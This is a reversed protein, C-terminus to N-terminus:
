LRLRINMRSLLVTFGIMSLAWLLSGGVALVPSADQKYILVPVGIGWILYYILDPALYTTLSNRGAPLFVRTWREKKLVDVVYFLLAFVLMSIGNCVMGWSPTAYIKSLIFWHRLVFGSLLCVIGASAIWLILKRHNNGQKKVLLGIVLGAMVVSPVNGDIITGLVPRAFDLFGLWGLQSFINLMVFFLVILMNVGLREGALLFSLSSVLYGWGILGLIGWWGTRLWQVHGPEGGRFIVAMTILGAIGLLKLGFFLKQYKSHDPYSNWVLFVSILVLISWFSHSIGTLEANVRGGNLMMVGIILLSVTRVLVHQLLQGTGAGKKRRAAFAFPVSMGVMFLFGPFVWDALGMGDVDAKTHVLWSPVGPEYLDNVFLMLFLTLGRMIDVSLIRAPRVRENAESPCSTLNSSADSGGAAVPSVSFDPRGATIPNGSTM